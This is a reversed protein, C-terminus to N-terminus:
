GQIHMTASRIYHGEDAVLERSLLGLIECEMKCTTAEWINFDFKGM